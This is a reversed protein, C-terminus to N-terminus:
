PFGSSPPCSWLLYTYWFARCLPQLPLYAQYSFWTPLLHTCCCWSAPKTQIVVRILMFHSQSLPKLSTVVPKLLLVPVYNLVVSLHYYHHFYHQHYYHCYYCGVGLSGQSHALCQELAKRTLTIMIGKQCSFFGLVSFYAAWPVTSSFQLVLISGQDRQSWCRSKVVRGHPQAPQATLRVPDSWM